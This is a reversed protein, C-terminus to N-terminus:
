DTNQSFWQIFNEKEKLILLIGADSVKMKQASPFKTFDGECIRYIV